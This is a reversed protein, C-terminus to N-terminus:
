RRPAIASLMSNKTPGSQTSNLSWFTNNTETPKCLNSSSTQVNNPLAGRIYSYHPCPLHHTSSTGLFTPIWSRYESHFCLSQCPSPLVKEVILPLASFAHTCSWSSLLNQSRHKQQLRLSHPSLTMQPSFLFATRGKRGKPLSHKFPILWAEQVAFSSSNKEKSNTNQELKRGVLEQRSMSWLQIFINFYVVFLITLYLAKCM